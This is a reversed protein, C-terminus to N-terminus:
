ILITSSDFGGFDVINTPPNPTHSDKGQWALIRHMTLYICIHM